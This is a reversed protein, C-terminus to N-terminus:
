INYPGPGRRRVRVNCHAHVERAGDRCPVNVLAGSKLGWKEIAVQATKLTKDCIVADSGQDLESRGFRWDWGWLLGKLLIDGKFGTGFDDLWFSGETSIFRPSTDPRANRNAAVDVGALGWNKVHDGVARERVRHGLACYEGGFCGDFVEPALVAEADIHNIQGDHHLHVVAPGSLPRGSQLEVHTALDRSGGLNGWRVV